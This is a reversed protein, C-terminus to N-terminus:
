ELHRLCGLSCRCECLQQLVGLNAINDSGIAVDDRDIGVLTREFAELYPLTHEDMAELM